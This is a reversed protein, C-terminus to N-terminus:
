TLTLETVLVNKIEKRDVQSVSFDSIEPPINDKVFPNLTSSIEDDTHSSTLWGIENPYDEPRAEIYDPIKDGDVDLPNGNKDMFPLIPDGYVMRQLDKMEEGDLYSYTIEYGYFEQGDSANDGDSDYERCKAAADSISLGRGRWYNFEPGDQFGDGDTDNSGM